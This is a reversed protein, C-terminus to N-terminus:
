KGLQLTYVNIGDVLVVGELRQEPNCMRKEIYEKVLVFDSGSKLYPQHQQRIINIYRTFHFQM